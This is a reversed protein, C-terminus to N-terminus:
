DNEPAEPIPLEISIETGQRKKISGKGSSGENSIGPTGTSWSHVEFKGGMLAVRERMGSLGFSDRKGLAEAVNFGIGNDEVHLKLM